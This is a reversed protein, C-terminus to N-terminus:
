SLYNHSNGRVRTNKEKTLDLFFYTIYKGTPCSVHKYKSYLINCMM